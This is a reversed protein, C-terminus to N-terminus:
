ASGEDLAAVLAAAAEIAHLDLGDAVLAKLLRAAGPPVHRSLAPRAPVHCEDLDLVLQELVSV